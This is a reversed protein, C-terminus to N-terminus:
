VLNMIDKITVIAMLLILVVFGVAHTIAEFRHNLRGGSLKEYFIFFLRGGDLAPFPIVNLAALNLSILGLIQLLYVIGLKGATDLFNFIGVPGTVGAATGWEGSFLSAILGFLSMFILGLIKISTKGGEYLAGLFNHKPIGGDILSVGLPGEGAPPNVRPVMKLVLSESGKVVNLEIEKGRNAEVFSIFESANKFDTLKDGERLGVAEAPGGSTVQGIFISPQVGIMFVASIALWGILLNMVAGAVVVLSKKFAPLGQFSRNKDAVEENSNEGYIKVFGGFPIANFSYITEGVKKKFIKPPFGFGFEEVRLKFLKAIIFHGFEHGIILVALFIIAIILTFM